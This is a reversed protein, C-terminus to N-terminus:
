CIKRLINCELYAMVQNLMSPFDKDIGHEWIYIGSNDKLSSQERYDLIVYHKM